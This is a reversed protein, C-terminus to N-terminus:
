VGVVEINATSFVPKEHNAMILTASSTPNASRGILIEQVDHGSVKNCPTFLRSENVNDGLKFPTIAIDDIEMDGNAFDVIAQKIQDEGDLDFVNYNIQTNVIVYIPVQVGDDWYMTASQSTEPDTSLQSQLGHTGIGAGVSGAGPPYMDGLPHIGFLTDAIDQDSGGMLIARVCGPPVGNSNTYPTNNVEVYCDTVNDLDSLVKKIMSPHHIGVARAAAWRRARLNPDSEQADGVEADLANTCSDWGRIPTNIVTLEGAPAEVAGDEVAIATAPSTGSPAIVVPGQIEFEAGTQTAVIAGSAPISTGYANAGLTVTVTSNSAVNRTIGNFKVLESLIAGTSTSPLLAAKTAAFDSLIDDKIETYIRSLRGFVGDPDDIRIDDGFATKFRTKVATFMTAFSPKLLGSVTSFYSM